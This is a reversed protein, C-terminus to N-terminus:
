GRQYSGNYFGCQAADYAGIVALEIREPSSFATLDTLSNVPELDVVESECSIFLNLTVLTVLGMLLSKNIKKWM